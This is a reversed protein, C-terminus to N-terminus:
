KVRVYKEVRCNEKDYSWDNRVPYVQTLSDGNIELRIKIAKGEYAPSVHVKIIETYQHGNLSYSGSGFSYAPTKGVFLFREKSWSKLQELNENEFKSFTTSGNQSIEISELRWTGVISSEQAQMQYSFLFLIFLISILNKM